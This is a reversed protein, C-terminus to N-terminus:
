FTPINSHLYIIVETKSLMFEVNNAYKLLYISPSSAGGKEWGLM